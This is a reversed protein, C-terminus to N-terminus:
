CNPNKRGQHDKSYTINNYVHKITDRITKMDLKDWEEKITDIMSKVSQPRRATVRDGVIGFLYEMVNFDPSRPPYGDRTRINGGAFGFYVVDNDDFWKRTHRATHCTSGDLVLYSEGVYENTETVLPIVQQACANTVTVSNM